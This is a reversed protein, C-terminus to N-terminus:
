FTLNFGLSFSRSRPYSLRDFGSFLPSASRIDPDMGSYKTWIFANEVSLYCRFGQIKLSGLLKSKVRYGLTVNKLRIYSADEVYYSSVFDNTSNLLGAYTNSPNEPTWRNNWYSQTLNYSTSGKAGAEVMNTFANMIQNGFVGEFFFNLDFNQYTFENGFGLNFKPNSNSIITRDYSNITGDPVGSPGSIDKYKRDGPNVAISNITVVGANLTSSYQTINGSSITSPDVTAGTTKDKWTFDTLQYNGDFVYGFGTGIPQGVIVRAVDTLSGNPITIPLFQADGLSIVENRNLDFNFTSKWTFDKNEINRTVLSLEIGKNSLRGLNQWQTTFGSQSPIQAQILMDRTDKYYVDAVLSIRNDFVGMDLGLDYQYTSEWKLNKNESTNPSMGMITAGNASYYNPTLSALAQYASIRDNGTSGLSARFKLNSIFGVSKMFPESNIRWAGSVSPFYGVRSGIQFNSSADARLNATLYYKDMYTYSVRGFASMRNVQTVLSTPPLVNAGKSIDFVGTTQDQFNQSKVGFSEYHYGNMEAGVLASVTHDKSFKKNYNLTASSTFSNTSIEAINASGNSIRGWLTSSSYFEQLKSGSSNISSTLNFKLDKTIKYDVYANGIFRTLTSSRYAEDTVMTAFSVFGNPFDVAESPSYLNTPRQTYIGQIVGTYSGEGGGSSVVGNSVTSGISASAGVTLKNNVEHDFKIKGSYRQYNNNVVIGNQYLYGLSSSIRTKGLTTNLSVDYNNTSGQRLMLNQWNYQQYQSADRPSDIKGDGNTDIGYTTLADGRLYKYNIYDQANLMDITKTAQTVGYSVNLNIETKGKKSGSKTTIIIVGNAGRAGYIATSSADKLIDVSAIDSPNITALPNYTTSGGIGSTAVESTNVDIQMGDIVYLPSSGAFISNAGRIKIDVSGGAEGSQSTVKVGALRGQLNESLDTIGLKSMSESSISSVSGTLDRRKSEGYGIAVVETLEVSNSELTVDIQKKGEISTEKQKMGIYSVILTKANEPLKLQYNGNVDSVSGVSFEKVRISAGVVPDGAADTIKGKIIKQETGGTNKTQMFVSQNISILLFFILTLSKSKLLNSNSM